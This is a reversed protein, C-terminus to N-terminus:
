HFLNKLISASMVVGVVDVGAILLYRIIQKKVVYGREKEAEWVASGYEYVGPLLTEQSMNRVKNVKDSAKKAASIMFYEDILGPRKVENM